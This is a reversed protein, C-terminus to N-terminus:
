LLCTIFKIKKRDKNRLNIVVTKDSCVLSNINIIPIDKLSAIVFTLSNPYFLNSTDYIFVAYKVAIHCQFLSSWYKLLTALPWHLFTVKTKITIFFETTSRETTYAVRFVSNAYRLWSIHWSILKGLCSSPQKMGLDLILSSFFSNWNKSSIIVSYYYLCFPYFM